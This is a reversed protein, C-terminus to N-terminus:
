KAADSLEELARASSLMCNVWDYDRDDLKKRNWHTPIRGDPDQMNIIADGLTRAKALCVPDETARYLALYGRIMQAAASDILHYCRYQETVGPAVWDLYDNQVWLKEAGTYRPGKGDARCPPEWCVFQDECFRLLERAQSLREGSKPFRKLLYLATACAPHVTLNVFMDTPEVDEFQGEWNWTRLPGSDVFALARDAAKRWRADGTLDFLKEFFLAHSMPFCRNGGIPAGDSERMKLSWTGDDGQLRLLTEGIRLAADRWKAAGTAGHLALYANAATVPYMLMCEGAYKKATLRDGVYTPPFFALPADAPQSHRLLWDGQKAATALAEAAREPRMAAYRVMTSIVASGMKAPYANKSYSFDMEGTEALHRTSPRSYLYEYALAAAEAYPRKAPPYAGERFPAQRWFRLRSGATGCARGQADIGECVVSAFGPPIDAWVPTLPATPASAEFTKARHQDDLVTFRYRVAGPVAKFDFSPPYLFWESHGNWFAQGRVGGPRVPMIDDAASDASAAAHCAMMGGAVILVCASPLKM